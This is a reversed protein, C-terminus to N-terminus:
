LCICIFSLPHFFITWAFPFLFFDPTAVTTDPLISKLYLGNCSVLFTVVHHDLSWDSFFVSCNCVSIYGGYRGWYMLCMSVFMFSSISMLMSITTSKLMRSMGIFLDDLCFILLSVCAQFSVNSWMSRTSIWLINCEFVSSHMKKGWTWVSCEGAHIVHTM